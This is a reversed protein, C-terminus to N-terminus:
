SFLPGGSQHTQSIAHLLVMQHRNQMIFCCYTVCINTSCCKQSCVEYIFIILSMAVSKNICNPYNHQIWVPYLPMNLFPNRNKLDCKLYFATATLTFNFVKVSLGTNLLICKIRVTTHNLLSFHLAAQKSSALCKSYLQM